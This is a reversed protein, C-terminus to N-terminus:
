APWLNGKCRHAVTQQCRALTKSLCNTARRRLTSTYVHTTSFNSANPFIDTERLRTHVVGANLQRNVHFHILEHGLLARWTSRLRLSNSSLAAYNVFLRGTHAHTKLNSPLANICPHGTAPELSLSHSLAQRWPLLSWGVRTCITTRNYPLKQTNHLLYSIGGLNRQNQM